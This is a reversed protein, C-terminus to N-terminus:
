GIWRKIREEIIARPTSYKERSRRIITNRHGFNRIVPPLTKGMFPEGDQGNTLLKAYV